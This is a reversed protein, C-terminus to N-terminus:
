ETAEFATEIGTSLRLCEALAHQSTHPSSTMIDAMWTPMGDRPGTVPEGARVLPKAWVM